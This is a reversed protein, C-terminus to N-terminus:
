FPRHYLIFNELRSHAQSLDSGEKQADCRSILYVGLDTAPGSDPSVPHPGKAEASKTPINCLFVLTLAILGRM